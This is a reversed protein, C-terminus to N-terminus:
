PGLWSRSFTAVRRTLTWWTRSNLLTCRGISIGVQASRRRLMPMGLLPRGWPLLQTVASSLIAGSRRSRGASTPTPRRPAPQSTPQSTQATCPQRSQTSTNWAQLGAQDFAEALWQAPCAFNTEAGINLVTQQIGTAFASQTLATPAETGLTDYQAGPDDEAASNEVQYISNLQDRDSESFLPFRSSVFNDYDARTKVSMNTLPVGENANNGVLIRRGAVLGKSLQATPREQIYDHDIVPLFAWSGYTGLSESFNFSAYQLVESETEVLCQFVSPYKELCPSDQGCGALSAFEHYYNTPVPDCYDYIAYSYPSAAIVNSFLDTQEGGYALAHFMVAGAGASEGGITVRTPDGGFTLIHEQVWELARRQDLLGANLQGHDKVDESALFGFAGLRYQIEVTIFDNGNTNMLVSPDYTAGFLGYGGGHIWVFVPLDSANPAAYVNLFLCDEDGLASTFGFEVPLGYGGTQPCLPPQDVASVLSGNGTPPQPAQWRLNGVPPAAYRISKWVNLGYTDDHYGQYTAYGLDVTPGLSRATRLARAQTTFPAAAALLMLM